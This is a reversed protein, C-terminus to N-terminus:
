YICLTYPHKQYVRYHVEDVFELNIPVDHIFM